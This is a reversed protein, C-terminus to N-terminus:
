ERRNNKRPRWDVKKWDVQEGLDEKLKKEEERKDRESGEFTWEFFCLGLGSAAEVMNRWSEEIDEEKSRNKTETKEENENKKVKSKKDKKADGVDEKRRQACVECKEEAWQMEERVRRGGGIEQFVNEKLRKEEERKDRKSGIFIDIFDLHGSGAEM